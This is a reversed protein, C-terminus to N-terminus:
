LTHRAECFVADERLEWSSWLSGDSSHKLAQLRLGLYLSFCPVAFSVLGSCIM